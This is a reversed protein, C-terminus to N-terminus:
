HIQDIIRPTNLTKNRGPRRADCTPFEGRKFQAVCTKVTAYWPAHERNIELLFSHYEKPAKSQLSFISPLEIRKVTSIVRTVQCTRKAETFLFSKCNPVHVVGRELCVISETRRCRSIHQVLSKDSCWRLSAPTAWDTYHSASPIPRLRSTNEEIPRFYEVPLHQLKVSIRGNRATQQQLDTQM